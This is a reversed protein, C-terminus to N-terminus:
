EDDVSLGGLVKMIAGTSFGRALLHRFARERAKPGKVSSNRKLWRKLADNAGEEEPASEILVLKIIGEEIGKLSLERAIRAPGWAKHRARSEALGRAFKEDDLYGLEILYQVAEGAEDTDFKEKLKTEMERVSRPRISLLRMAAGKASIGNKKQPREKM